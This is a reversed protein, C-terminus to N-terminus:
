YSAVIQYQIENSYTGSEQLSSVEIKYVSYAHVESANPASTYAIQGNLNGTIITDLNAQLGPRTLLGAYNEGSAFLSAGTVAADTSTGTYGLHGWTNEDGPNGTPSAWNVASTPSLRSGDKFQDIDYTSTSMNGDQVVYVGAGGAASTVWEVRQACIKPVFPSLTGFPCSTTTSGINTVIPAGTGISTGADVANVTFTMSENVTATFTTAEQIAVNSSGTDYDINDFFCGNQFVDFQRCKATSVTLGHIDAYGEVHGPKFGPTTFVGNYFRIAIQTGTTVSTVSGVYVDMRNPYDRTAGTGNQTSTVVRVVVLDNSNFVIGGTGSASVCVDSNAGSCADPNTSTAITSTVRFASGWGYGATSTTPFNLRFRFCSQTSTATCNTADMTSTVHFLYEINTQTSSPATKSLIIQVNTLAGANAPRQFLWAFCIFLAIFVAFYIFTSVQKAFSIM